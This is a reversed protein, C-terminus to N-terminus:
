LSHGRNKGFNFNKNPTSAAQSPRNSLVGKKRRKLIEDFIKRLLPTEIQLDANVFFKELNKYEDREYELAQMAMELKDIQWFIKAEESSREIMEEFIKKYEDSNELIKFIRELGLKEMKEKETRKKIDIINGSSWVIDGTIVEGLDHILAMKILKEKDLGLSDSIVMALVSVRFSHEAVSEPDKIKENIWGSRLLKKSKGVIDMFDVVSQSSQFRYLYIFQRSIKEMETETLYGHGASELLKNAEHLSKIGGREVFIKILIILLNRSLPIRNGNQWRSLASDEYILGKEALAQGLDSLSLFESKLRFKKFLNSFTNNKM